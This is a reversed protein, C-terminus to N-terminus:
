LCNDTGFPNTGTGTLEIAVIAGTWQSQGGFNPDIDLNITSFSLGGTIDQNFTAGTFGTDFVDDVYGDRYGIINPNPGTFDPDFFVKINTLVRSITPSAIEIADVPTFDDNQKFGVTAVYQGFTVPDTNIVWGLQGTTFDFRYCWEGCGCDGCGAATAAGVTGANTVGIYGMGNVTQYFFTEAFGSFTTAIDTLLGQWAEYDLEGDDNMRCYVLCKFTELATFTIEATIGTGGIQIIEAAMTLFLVGIGIGVGSVGAIVGIFALIGAIIALLSPTAGVIDILNDRYQEFLGRVNDAAACRKGDSPVGPLPPAGVYDARPDGDPDDAWTEGGDISTQYVGQENFRHLEGEDCCGSMLKRALNASWRGILGTDIETETAIYRTKWAIYDVFGLLMQVERESLCYSCETDSALLLMDYNLLRAKYTQKPNPLVM